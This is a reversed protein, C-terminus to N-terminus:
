LRERERGGIKKDMHLLLLDIITWVIFCYSLCGNPINNIFDIFVIVILIIILIMALAMVVDLVIEEFIVAYEIRIYLRIAILAVRAFKCCIFQCCDLLAM